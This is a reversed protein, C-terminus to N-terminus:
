LYGWQKRVRLNSVWLDSYVLFPDVEAGSVRSPIGTHFELLLRFPIGRGGHSPAELTDWM